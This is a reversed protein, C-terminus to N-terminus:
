LAAGTTEPRARLRLYLFILLGALVLVVVAAANALGVAGQAFGNKWIYFEMVSSANGPGGLTLVYVYTFVWSLVTIAETVVFFEISARIQPLQIRTQLQWWSVGDLRAAETVEVPLSLLAALFVVVGFGLQQWVVVGGVSWIAWTPSGLWDVALGGLGSARLATNLGGNFQLFVSFALGIGVAPLIYPLFVAARYFRWGRIGDHLIVAILLALVTMAPVTILLRLNNALSTRFVPDGFLVRFNGLGVYTQAYFTGAFFSNRVVSVLPFIFGFGIALAAPLVFWYPWAPRRRRGGARAVPEGAAARPSAAAPSTQPDAQTM